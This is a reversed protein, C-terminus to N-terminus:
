EEEQQKRAAECVDCRCHESDRGLPCRPAIHYDEGYTRYTM